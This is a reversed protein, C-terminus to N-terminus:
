NYERWQSRCRGGCEKGWRREASRAAATSTATRSGGRRRGSRRGRRRRGWWRRRRRSGGIIVIGFILARVSCGGRLSEGGILRARCPLAHLNGDDVAADIRVGGYEGAPGVRGALVVDGIAADGVVVAM